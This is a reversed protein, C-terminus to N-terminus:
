ESRWTEVTTSILEAMQDPAQLHVAHSGRVSAFRAAGLHEVLRNGVNTFKEDESGAVVLTPATIERLRDWLPEQTGTGCSRLSSQLGEVRNALRAERAAAEDSLGAFLPNALWEDLFAALGVTGLHDALRYDAERRTARDIDADLGATAGILVLGDVLQPTTLALHLAIRGGMSYGVYYGQRGVDGLLEAAHWLDADDHGSSGHGPLDVLVVEFHDALLEPLSGWCDRNQTFGHALVLRPGSGIVRTHLPESM